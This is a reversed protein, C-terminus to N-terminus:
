SLSEFANDPPLGYEFSAHANHELLIYIFLFYILIFPVVSYDVNIVVIVYLYDLLRGASM